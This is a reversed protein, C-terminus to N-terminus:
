FRLCLSLKLPHTFLVHDQTMLGPRTLTNLEFILGLCISFKLRNM